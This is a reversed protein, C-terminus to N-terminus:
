DPRDLNSRKRKNLFFESLLGGCKTELLGSVVQCRHNLRPDNLIQYLTKVAGSKPDKAGFVVRPIRANVIAGACMPCPELTVYLTCGTLRWQGLKQCAKEIAIIEAHHTAVQTQEKLNHAEAIVESGRVIITGVPIEDQLAAQHALQIAREMWFVDETTFVQHSLDLTVSSNLPLTDEGKIKKNSGM